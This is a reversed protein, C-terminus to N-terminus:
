PPNLGLHVAPWNPTPSPHICRHLFPTYISHRLDLRQLLNEARSPKSVLVCQRFDHWLFVFLTRKIEIIELLLVAIIIYIIIMHYKKMYLSM